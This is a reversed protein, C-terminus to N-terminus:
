EGLMVPTGLKRQRSVIDVRLLRRMRKMVDPRLSASEVVVWPNCIYDVQAFLGSLTTLRLRQTVRLGM